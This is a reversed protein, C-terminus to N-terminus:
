HANRRYITYSKFSFLVRKFGLGLTKINRAMELLAPRCKLSGQWWDGVKETLMSFAWCEHMIASTWNHTAVQLKGKNRIKSLVEVGRMLALLALFLSQARTTTSGELKAVVHAVVSGSSGLGLAARVGTLIWKDVGSNGLTVFLKSRWRSHKYVPAVYITTVLIEVGLTIQLVVPLLHM